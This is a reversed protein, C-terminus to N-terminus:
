TLILSSLLVGTPIGPLVPLPGEVPHIATFFRNL